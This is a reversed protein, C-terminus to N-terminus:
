RGGEGACSTACAGGRPGQSGTAVISMLCKTAYPHSSSSSLVPTILTPRVVVLIENVRSWIKAQEATWTPTIAVPVWSYGSVVDCGGTCIKSLWMAVSGAADTNITSTGLELHLFNSFEVQCDQESEDAVDDMNVDLLLGLSELRPCNRAFIRLASLSTYFPTGEFPECNLKLSRINPLNTVFSELEDLTYSLPYQYYLEFVELQPMDHIARVDDLSPPVFTDDETEVVSDVRYELYLRTLRPLWTRFGGLLTSLETITPIALPSHLFLDTIRAPHHPSDFFSITDSVSATLSLDVLAPFAGEKLEPKFTAVDQPDGRRDPYFLEYQVVRLQPMDQLGEIVRTTLWFAPVILKRLKGLSKVANLLIDELRNDDWRIEMKFRIELSELLPSRIALTKMMTEWADHEGVPIAVTLGKLVPTFLMTCWDLQGSSWSVPDKIGRIWTLHVLNPLIYATTRTRAIRDWASDAILVNSSEDEKNVGGLDEEYTFRRVRRAYREFVPWNEPEPDGDM